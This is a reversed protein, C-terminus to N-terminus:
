RNRKKTKLGSLYKDKKKERTLQNIKNKQEENEKRLRENELKTDKYLNLAQERPSIGIEKARDIVNEMSDADRTSLWQNITKEM